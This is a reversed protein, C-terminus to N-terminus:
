LNQHRVSFDGTCDSRTSSPMSTTALDKGLIQEQCICFSLCRRVLMNSQHTCIRMFACYDARQINMTVFNAYM